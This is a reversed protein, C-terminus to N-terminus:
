SLAFRHRRKLATYFVASAFEIQKTWSVASRRKEAEAQKLNIMEHNMEVQQEELKRFTLPPYRKILSADEAGPIEFALPKASQM